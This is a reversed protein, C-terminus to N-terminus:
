EQKKKKCPPEEPLILDQSCKEVNDDYPVLDTTSYTQEKCYQYHTDVFEENEKKQPSEFLKTFLRSGNQFLSGKYIEEKDQTYVAQHLPNSKVRAKFLLEMLDKSLPTLSSQFKKCSGYRRNDTDDKDCWCKQRVGNPTILFYITNSHRYGPMLNQCIQSGYGKTTVIYFKRAANTFMNRVLVDKYEPYLTRVYEQTKVVELSNMDLYIKDRVKNEGRKDLDFTDPQTGSTSKRNAARKPMYKLDYVTYEDEPVQEENSAHTPAGVPVCYDDPTQHESSVRISCLRVMMYVDQVQKLKEEDVYGESDLYITPTYVRGVDERGSGGCHICTVQEQRKKKCVHCVVMKRSGPMRLGNSVYVSRDVIDEWTNWGQRESSGYVKYLEAVISLRMTLCQESTVLLYPMVVHIGTKCLHKKDGPETTLIIADFIQPQKSTEPYFRKLVTQVLAVYAIIENNTLVRPGMFDLDALFRFVPTRRESVYHRRNEQLDKSYVYKFSDYVSEPVVLVGGKEGNMLYHTADRAIDVLNNKKEWSSVFYKYRTCFASLWTSDQSKFKLENELETEM